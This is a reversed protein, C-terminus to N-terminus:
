IVYLLDHVCINMCKWDGSFHRLTVVSCIYNVRIEIVQGYKELASFQQKQDTVLVVGDIAQYTDGHM